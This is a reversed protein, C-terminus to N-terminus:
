ALLKTLHREWAHMAERREDVYKARNYIAAIGSIQGSVHNLLREIIHPAIGMEALRTAFTRRLDHHTWNSFGCREDLQEKLPGFVYLYGTKTRGPFVHPSIRPIDSLIQRALPTLPIRHERNNKM